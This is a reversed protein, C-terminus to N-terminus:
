FVFSLGALPVFDNLWGRIKAGPATVFLKEPFPSIYDRFDVRILAHETLTVKVGGGV